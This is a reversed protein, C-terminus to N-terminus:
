MNEVANFRKKVTVAFKANCVDSLENAPLLQDMLLFRSVMPLSHSFFVAHSKGVSQFFYESLVDVLPKDCQCLRQRM